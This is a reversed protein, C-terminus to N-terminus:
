GNTIISIIHTQNFMSVREVFFVFYANWSVSALVIYDNKKLAIPTSHLKNAVV